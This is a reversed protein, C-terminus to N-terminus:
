GTAQIVGYIAGLVAATSLLTAVMYKIAAEAGQRRARNTEGLALQEYCGQREGQCNKVSGQLARMDERSTKQAMMIMLLLERDTHARAADFDLRDLDDGNFSEM